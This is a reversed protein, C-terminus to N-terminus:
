ESIEYEAGNYKSMVNEINKCIFDDIIDDAFDCIKHLKELDRDSFNGLVYDKIPIDQNKSIGIKFRPFYETNLADIISRIGNHGGCSGKYKIKIKGVPMDLDDQIIFIDKPYIKYYDAYKKIVNGSMNMYSLPKLLIVTENNVYIKTYLGDMNEQFHQVGKKKAYSDLIIFGANHRTIEYEKGPNGLGVIMKM